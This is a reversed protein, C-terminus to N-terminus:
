LKPLSGGVSKQRRAERLEAELKKIYAATLVNDKEVATMDVMALQWSLLGGRPVGSWTTSIVLGCARHGKPQEDTGLVTGFAMRFCEDQLNKGSAMWLVGLGPIQESPAVRWSFSNRGTKNHESRPPTGYKAILAEYAEKERPGKGTAFGVQWNRRIGVVRGTSHAFFLTIADDCNRGNRQICFTTSARREEGDRVERYLGYGTEELNPYAAMLVAEAEQAAQGTRVGLVDHASLEVPNEPEASSTIAAGGLLVAVMVPSSLPMFIWRRILRSLSRVKM